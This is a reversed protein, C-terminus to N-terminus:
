RRGFNRHAGALTANDVDSSPARDLFGINIRSRRVIYRKAIVNDASLRFVQSSKWHM